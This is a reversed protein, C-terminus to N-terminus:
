LRLAFDFGNRLASLRQAFYYNKGLSVVKACLYLKEGSVSFAGAMTPLPL